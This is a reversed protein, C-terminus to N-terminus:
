SNTGTQKALERWKKCLASFKKVAAAVINDAEMQSLPRKELRKSMERDIEDLEEWLEVAKQNRFAKEYISCIEKDAKLASSRSRKDSLTTM